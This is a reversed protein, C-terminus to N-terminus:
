RNKKQNNIYKEIVGQSMNGVSEAFYSRTWLTPTRSRLFSFESRLINATKGKLQNAIHSPSDKTNAKVFVHVHDPMVELSKIEWEKEIAIDMIIEKLRIDVGKDLLKLRYKTCWVVHYGLNYVSHGKHKYKEM